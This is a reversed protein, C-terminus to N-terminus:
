EYGCLIDKITGMTADLEGSSLAVNFQEYIEYNRAKGSVTTAALVEHAKPSLVKRVHYGRVWPFFRKQLKRLFANRQLNGELGTKGALIPWMGGVIKERDAGQRSQCILYDIVEPKFYDSLYRLHALDILKVVEDTVLRGTGKYSELLLARYTKYEDFLSQPSSLLFEAPHWNVYSASPGLSRGAYLLPLRAAKGVVVAVAGGLLERGLMSHLGQVCSLAERLVTTRHLGYSLAEYNAFLHHLRDLPDNEEISRGKYAIGTLGLAGNLYFNFYWGHAVSYDPNKDLYDLLPAIAAVLVLDDDACLSSYDTEVMESGRWFKEWPPMETDFREIRLDLLLGRTQEFNRAKNAPTSSDLVLIPFTAKQYALFRLLRGLDGPRNYTPIILTFRNKLM